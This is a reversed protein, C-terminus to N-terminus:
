LILKAFLRFSIKQKDWRLSGSFAYVNRITECFCYNILRTPLRARHTYWFPILTFAIARSTVSVSIVLPPLNSLDVSKPVTPAAPLYNNSLSIASAAQKIRLSAELHMVRFTMYQSAPLWKFIFPVSDPLRGSRGLTPQFTRNVKTCSGIFVHM